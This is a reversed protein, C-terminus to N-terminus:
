ALYQNKYHNPSSGTVKKFLRSFHEVNNYGISDCIEYIKMNTTKMLKKAEEIRLDTIYNTFTEGVEKKFLASFHSESLGMYNSVMWVSINEDKFNDKIFSIARTMAFSMKSEKKDKVFGVVWGVLNRIWINIEQGTEFKTIQQYFNVDKGFVTTVDEGMDNICKILVFIIETYYMLIKDIEARQSAILELLKELENMVSSEDAAKLAEVFGDTKPIISLNDKVDILLVDQPYIIKQKGFIFRFRANKEAQSFLEHTKEFGSGIDSVGITVHLNLFYALNNKIEYLLAELKQKIEGDPVCPFSLVMVYEDPSISIVEGYDSKALTQKITNITSDIFPTLTSNAYREEIDYFDDIWLFCVIMNSSNLRLHQLNHEAFDTRKAHLMEKLLMEKSLLYDADTNNVAKAANLEETELKDTVNKLVNLLKDEDIETKLIYDRVGYKFASRVLKYDEYASLVIIAQSLGRVKMEEILKLGDMVPMNIDTMVIDIDTNETLLNLAQKGNHAEYAMDINHENWKVLSKITVSVIPEDDVILVKYM